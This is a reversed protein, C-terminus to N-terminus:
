SSSSASIALGITAFTMAVTAVTLVVVAGGGVRLREHLLTVGLAAGIMPELVAIIPLSAPLQGAQFALQQLYIGSLGVAILGYTEGAALLPGLGHPITDVVSKTLLANVGALVGVAIALLAARAAGSRSQAVVICAVVLPLAVATVVLWGAASARGAGRDPHGLTVFVALSVALVVAWTWAVVTLRRRVLYAGLPLAFLLSTVIVPAVVVLPGFALAFGQLVFGGGNGLTGAWWLPSRLLQGVFKRSRADDDTSRAAARQQAVTAVAFALASALALVVCAVLRGDLVGHLIGPIRIAVQAPQRCSGPALFVGVCHIKASEFRKRRASQLM